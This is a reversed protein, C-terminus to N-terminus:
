VPEHRRRQKLFFAAARREKSLDPLTRDTVDSEGADTRDIDLQGVM